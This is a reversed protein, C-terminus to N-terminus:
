FFVKKLLDLNKSIQNSIHKYGEEYANQNYKRYKRLKLIITNIEDDFHIEKKKRQNDEIIRETRTGGDQIEKLTNLLEKHYIFVNLIFGIILIININVNKFILVIIAVLIIIIKTNPQILKHIISMSDTLDIM